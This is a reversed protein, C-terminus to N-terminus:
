FAHAALLNSPFYCGALMTTVEDLRSKVTVFLRNLAVLRCEDYGLRGLRPRRAFESPREAATQSWQSRVFQRQNGVFGPDM